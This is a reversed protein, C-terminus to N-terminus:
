PTDSDTTDAPKSNGEILDAPAPEIDHIMRTIHDARAPTDDAVFSLRPTWKMRLQKAIERQLVRTAGKLASVSDRGATPGGGLVSVYVTATRLDPAADVKTITVFGLKPNDVKREIAEAIIQQLSDGVRMFRRYGKQRHQRM